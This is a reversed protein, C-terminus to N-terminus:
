RNRCFALIPVAAQVATLGALLLSGAGAVPVWWPHLWDSSPAAVARALPVALAALAGDIAINLAIRVPPRAAM